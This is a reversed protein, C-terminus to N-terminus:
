LEKKFCISNSVGIYPGFNSIVEYNNKKYFSVAEVQRKGTELICSKYGLEKAWIELAVLVQTATQQGRSEPLTFMRKIEVSENNFSKFAGCGIAIDNSYALIVHKITDIHNYQNYFAHDDGDVIKLYANLQNVLSIFDRNSADTRVIKVM